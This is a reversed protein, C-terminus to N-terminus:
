GDRRESLAAQRSQIEGPKREDMDADEQSHSRWRQIVLTEHSEVDKSVSVIYAMDEVIGVCVRRRLCGEIDASWPKSSPNAATLPKGFVRNGTPPRIPLVHPVM